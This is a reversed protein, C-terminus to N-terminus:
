ARSDDQEMMKWWQQRVFRWPNTLTPQAKPLIVILYPFLVVRTWKQALGDSTKVSNLGGYIKWIGDM